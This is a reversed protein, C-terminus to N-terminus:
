AEDTFGGRELPRNRCLHPIPRIFGLPAPVSRPMLQYLHREPRCNGCHVELLKEERILDGIAVPKLRLPQPKRRSRARNRDLDLEVLEPLRAILKSIRRAEDSTLWSDSVAIAGDPQGYVHALVIDNADLVRYGSPLPEVSWPKPFRCWPM